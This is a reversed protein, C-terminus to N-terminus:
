PAGVRLTALDVYDDFVSVTVDPGTVFTNPNGALPVVDTREFLTEQARQFAACRGADDAAALGAALAAEGEPNVSASYNRGGDEVGTGIVRDLSASIAGVSNLDGLFVMDWDAGGEAITSWFTANDVKDMRVEAGADRVAQFLYDAGGSFQRNATNGIITIPGAGTLAAAAAAPDHPQLLSRDTSTCAFSAPTVSTLLEATGKSFVQNFARQDIAAAVGRRLDPRDAFVRGPRQNFVVYATSSTVRYQHLDPQAAFRAVAAPDAFQGLDLDGALIQNAVTSQDTTIGAEIRRPPTGRLPEAFEPWADYGPRLDFAYSLGQQAQALVYPGSYAGPVTGADLGEPDAIGAPCVIGAQAIALGQPLTTFPESLTVQVRGAADDATVQVDGPGFVLNKWTSGLEPDALRALSGAVVSATIPTGDACDAGSRIDFTYSAASESSWGTALGGVLQGGDDRRLLTDYLLGAVQFTQQGQAQAPDFGSPDSNLVTRVTGTEAPGAAPGACGALLTAGLALAGALRAPRRM